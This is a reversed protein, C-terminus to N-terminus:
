FAALQAHWTPNISHNHDSVYISTISKIPLNISANQQKQQNSQKMTTQYTSQYAHLNHQLTISKTSKSKNQVHNVIKTPKSSKTITIILQNQDQKYDIPKITERKLKERVKKMQNTEKNNKIQNQKQLLHEQLLAFGNEDKKWETLHRNERQM